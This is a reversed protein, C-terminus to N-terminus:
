FIAKPLGMILLVMVGILIYGAWRPLKPVNVGPSEVVWFAGYIALCIVVWGIAVSTLYDVWFFRAMSNVTFYAGILWAGCAVVALRSQISKFM